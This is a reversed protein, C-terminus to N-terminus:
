RIRRVTVLNSQNLLPLVKLTEGPQLYRGTLIDRVLLDASALAIIDFSDTTGLEETGLYATTSWVASKDDSEIRRFQLLDQVWWQDTSSPHVLVYVRAWQPEVDGQVTIKLGDVEAAPKPSTINVLVYSPPVTGWWAIVLYACAISTLGSVAVVWKKMSIRSAVALGVTGVLVWVVLNTLITIM